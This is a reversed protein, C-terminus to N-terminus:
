LQASRQKLRGTYKTDTTGKHDTPSMVKGPIVHILAINEDSERTEKDTWCRWSDLGFEFVNYECQRGVM